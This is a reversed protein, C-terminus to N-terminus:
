TASASTDPRASKVWFEMIKSTQEAHDVDKWRYQARLEPHKRYGRKEWFRDLPQYDAPRLPHEPPRLVACFTYYDFGGLERAHAEREEFFRVGLGRGRYDRRLVSEACYFVREPDYGAAIFPRQFNAEEARLPIGTSAGVVKDANEGGAFAVVVVADACNAYTQLYRREYEMDGDYLYPFERFVDIRLRAVADLYDMLAAGSFRKVTLTNPM